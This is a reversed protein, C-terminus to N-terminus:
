ASVKVPGQLPAIMSVKDCQDAVVQWYLWQEPRHVYAIGDQRHTHNDRQQEAYLRADQRGIRSVLQRAQMKASMEKALPFAIILKSDPGPPLQPDRPVDAGDPGALDPPTDTQPPTLALSHM